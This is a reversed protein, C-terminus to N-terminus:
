PREPRCGARRGTRASTAVPDPRSGSPTAWRTLRSSGATDFAPQTASAETLLHAFAPNFGTSDSHSKLLPKRTGFV